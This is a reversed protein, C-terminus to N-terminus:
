FTFGKSVNDVTVQLVKVHFVVVHGGRLEVLPGGPLIYSGQWCTTFVHGNQLAIFGLSEFDRSLPSRASSNPSRMKRSWPDAFISSFGKPNKITNSPAM